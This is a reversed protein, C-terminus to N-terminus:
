MPVSFARGADSTEAVDWVLHSFIQASYEDGTNDANVAVNFTLSDSQDLVPGRGTLQRWNKESPEINSASGGGGTQDPNLANDAAFPTQGAGHFIDFIRDESLDKGKIDYDEVTGADPAYVEGVITPTSGLEVTDSAPLNAGFVGRVEVQSPLTQEANENEYEIYGTIRHYVLEAVENNALGGIPGLPEFEIQGAANSNAPASGRAIMQLNTQQYEFDSYDTSIDSDMNISM